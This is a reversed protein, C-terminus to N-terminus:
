SSFPFSMAQKYITIWSVRDTGFAGRLFACLKMSMDCLLLLLYVFFLITVKNEKLTLAYLSRGDCLLVVITQWVVVCIDDTVCCCLYRRDCLLVVITHWVIVCRDDTVCCCLSRRDCLLVVITQWVVVCIDYTVCCCLSRIDCLLVFITQWVVVCLVNKWISMSLRNISLM